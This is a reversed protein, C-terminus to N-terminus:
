FILAIQLSGNCAISLRQHTLGFHAFGFYNLRHVDAARLLMNRLSGWQCVILRAQIRVLALHM